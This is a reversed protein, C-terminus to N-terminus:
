NFCCIALVSKLATSTLVIFLPITVEAEFLAFSVNWPIDPCNLFEYYEKVPNSKSIYNLRCDRRPKIDGGLM